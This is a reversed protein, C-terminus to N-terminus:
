RSNNVFRIAVGLDRLEVLVLHNEEGSAGAEDPLYTAGRLVVSMM